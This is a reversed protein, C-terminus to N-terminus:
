GTASANPIFYVDADLYVVIRILVAASRPPSTSTRLGGLSSPVSAPNISTEHISGSRKAM